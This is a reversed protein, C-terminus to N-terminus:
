NLKNMKRTWREPVQHLAKDTSTRLHLGCHNHKAARSPQDDVSYTCVGALQCAETPLFVSSLPLRRRFQAVPMTRREDVDGGAFYDNIGRM